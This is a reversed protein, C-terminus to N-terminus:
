PQAQACQIAAQIAARPQPSNKWCSARTLNAGLALVDQVNALALLQFSDLGMAELRAIVTHGVGTLQLM